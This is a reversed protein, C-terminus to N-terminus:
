PLYEVNCYPDCGDNYDPNGDDCQEDGELVNNGCFWTPGWHCSPDCGDGDNGNGDDCDEGYEVNWNGCSPTAVIQCNSCGDFDDYNGDDCEELDETYSNGCYGVYGWHCDSACGDGDMLGGDDCDEGAEVISNGCQAQEIQCWSDCGDYGWDNGDDCSENPDVVSDGCYPVELALINSVSGRVHPLWVRATSGRVLTYPWTLTCTANGRRDTMCAGGSPSQLPVVLCSATSFCTENGPDALGIKVRRSPGGGTISVSGVEGLGVRPASLTVNLARRDDQLEDPSPAGLEQGACGVLGLVAVWTARM